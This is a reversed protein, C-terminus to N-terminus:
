KQLYSSDHSWCSFFARSSARIWGIIKGNQISRENLNYNQTHQGSFQLNRYWVPKQLTRNFKTKGTSNHSFPNILFFLLFRLFMRFAISREFRNLPTNSLRCLAKRGTAALQIWFVVVAQNELNRFWLFFCSSWFQRSLM